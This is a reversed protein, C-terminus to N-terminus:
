RLTFLAGWSTSLYEHFRLTGLTSEATFDPAIDGLQMNM